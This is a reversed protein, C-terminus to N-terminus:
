KKAPYLADEACDASKKLLLKYKDVLFTNVEAPLEILQIDEEILRSATKRLISSSMKGHQTQTKVTQIVTSLNFFSRSCVAVRKIKWIAAMTVVGYLGSLLANHPTNDGAIIRGSNDAGDSEPGWVYAFSGLNASRLQSMFVIVPYVPGSDIIVPHRILRLRSKVRIGGAAGADEIHRLVTGLFEDLSLLVDDVAPGVEQIETCSGITQVMARLNNIDDSLISRLADM